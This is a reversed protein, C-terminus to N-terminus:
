DLRLRSALRRPVCGDEGEAASDALRVLPHVPALGPRHVALRHLGVALLAVGVRGGRHATAELLERVVRAQVVVVRAECRERALDVVLREGVQPPADLEERREAVLRSPVLVEGGYSVVRPELLSKALRAR